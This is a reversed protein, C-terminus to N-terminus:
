QRVEGPMLNLLAVQDPKLQDDALVATWGEPVAGLVLAIAQEPPAAAVWFQKRPLGRLLYDTTVEVIEFCEVM